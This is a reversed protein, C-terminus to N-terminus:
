QAIWDKTSSYESAVHNWCQCLALRACEIALAVWKGKNPSNIDLSPQAVDNCCAVPDKWVYVCHWVCVRQKYLWSTGPDGDYGNGYLDMTILWHWQVMSPSVDSIIAMSASCWLCQDAQNWKLAWWINFTRKTNDKHENGKKSEQM